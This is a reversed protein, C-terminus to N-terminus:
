FRYQRISRNKEKKVSKRKGGKEKKRRFGGVRAASDRERMVFRSNGNGLHSMEGYLFIPQTTSAGKVKEM